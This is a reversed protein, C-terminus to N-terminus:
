EWVVSEISDPMHKHTAHFREAMSVTDSAVCTARSREGTEPGTKYGGSAECFRLGACRVGSVGCGINVAAARRPVRQLRAM